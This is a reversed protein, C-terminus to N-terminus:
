NLNSQFHQEECKVFPKEGTHIRVQFQTYISIWVCKYAKEGTHMQLNIKQTIKPLMLGCLLSMSERWHTNAQKSKNEIRYLHQATCKIIHNRYM